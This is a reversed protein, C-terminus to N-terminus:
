FFMLLGEQAQNLNVGKELEDVTMNKFFMSICVQNLEDHLRAFEDEDMEDWGWSRPTVIEEGTYPDKDRHVFSTKLTLYRRLSNVDKFYNGTEIGEQNFFVFNLLAFVYRHHKGSRPRHFNATIADGDSWRNVKARDLVTSPVLVADQGVPRYVTFSLKSM